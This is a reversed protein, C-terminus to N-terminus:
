AFSSRIDSRVVGTQNLVNPGNSSDGPYPGATEEPVRSVCASSSPDSVATAGADAACGVLHIAGLTAGFRAAVGLMRRRDMADGTALLDRHLGGQDDHDDDDVGGRASLFLMSAGRCNIERQWPCSVRASGPRDALRPAGFRFVPPRCERR